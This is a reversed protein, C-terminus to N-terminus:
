EVRRWVRQIRGEPAVIDFSLRDPTVNVNELSMEQGTQNPILTHGLTLIVKNGETRYTGAASEVDRLVEKFEKQSYDPLRKNKPQRRDAATVVYCFRNRTFILTAALSPAQGSTLNKTAVLMWTGEVSPASSTTTSGPAPAQKLDFNILTTKWGQRQRELVYFSHGAMNLKLGHSTTMTQKTEAYAWATTGSVRTEIHGLQLEMGPFNKFNIDLYELATQLTELRRGSEIVILGDSCTRRLGVPDNAAWAQALLQVTRRADPLAAAPAPTAPKKPKRQALATGNLCLLFCLIAAAYQTMM